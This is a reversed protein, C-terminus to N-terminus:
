TAYVLCKMIGTHMTSAIKLSEAIKRGHGAIGPWYCGQAAKPRVHVLRTGDLSAGYVLQM